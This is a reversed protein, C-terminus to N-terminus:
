HLKDYFDVIPRRRLSLTPMYSNYYLKEEFCRKKQSPNSEEDSNALEVVNEMDNEDVYITLRNEKDRIADQSIRRRAVVPTEDNVVVHTCNEIECKKSPVIVKGKDESPRRSYQTQKNQLPPKKEYCYQSPVVYVPHRGVEPHRHLPESDDQISSTAVTVYTVNEPKEIEDIGVIMRKEAHLESLHTPSEAIPTSYINIITSHSPHPYYLAKPIIKELQTVYVKRPCAVTSSRPSTQTSKNPYHRTFSSPQRTLLPARQVQQPTVSRREINKTEDKPYRNLSREPKEQHPSHDISIVTPSRSRTVFRDLPFHPVESHRPTLHMKPPMRPSPTSRPTSRRSSVVSSTVSPTASSRLKSAKSVYRDLPTERVDPQLPTQHTRPPMIDTPLPTSRNSVTRESPPISYKHDKRICSGLPTWPIDEELPTFHLKPCMYSSYRKSKTAPVVERTVTPSSPKSYAPEKGVYHHLPTKRLEQELSTEYVKSPPTPDKRIYGELPTSRLDKEPRIENVEPVFKVPPSPTGRLIPAETPYDKQNTGRNVYNEIPTKRLDDELQTQHVTPPRRLPPSSRISIELPVPSNSVYNDLPTRRVDSVRRTLYIPSPPPSRKSSVPSVVTQSVPSPPNSYVPTKRIPKAVHDDLPCRPIDPHYRTLHMKQPPSSPSPTRIIRPTSPSSYVPTRRIPKAVCDDLPIRPVEPHLKTLYIPPPTPSTSLPPTKRVPVPTLIAPTPSKSDTRKRSICRELPIHPVEKERRILYLKPSPTRPPSPRPPTVPSPPSSYIPSRSVPARPVDRQLPLVPTTSKASVPPSTSKSFPIIVIDSVDDESDPPTSYIPRSVCRDLSTWPVEKQRKIQHIKEIKRPSPVPTVSILTEKKVVTSRYIPTITIKDMSQSKRRKVYQDSRMISDEKHLPNMNNKSPRPPKVPTRYIPTPTLVPSDSMSKSSFPYIVIAPSESRSDSKPSAAHTRYTSHQISHNLPIRSVEPQLPTLHIPPKPVPPSTQVPVIRVRPSSKERPIYVPTVSRDSKQYPVEDYTPVRLSHLSPSRIVEENRSSNSSRSYMTSRPVEDYKPLKSSRSYTNYGSPNIHIESYRTVETGRSYRTPINHLNSAKSYTSSPKPSIAVSEYRPNDPLKSYMSTPRPSRPVEDYKPLKSTRSYITSSRPSNPVEDYRPNDPVKSYMSTPRPSPHKQLNSAKSYTRSFKPSPQSPVEPADFRPVSASRYINYTTTTTTKSYHTGETPVREYRPSMPPIYRPMPHPDVEEQLPLPSIRGNFVSSRTPYESVTVPIERERPVERFSSLPSPDTPVQDYRVNAMPISVRRGENIEPNRKLTFYTNPDVPSPHKLSDYHNFENYITAQQPSHTQRYADIIPERSEHKKIRMSELEEERKRLQERRIRERLEEERFDFPETNETSFPLDTQHERSVRRVGRVPIKEGTEPNRLDYSQSHGM